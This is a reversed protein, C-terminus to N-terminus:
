LFKEDATRARVLKAPSGFAVVLPPLDCVVVAGAGVVTHEGITKGHIVVAGAGVWAGRGVFVNGSLTSGPALAAFDGM